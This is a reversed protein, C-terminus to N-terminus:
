GSAVYKIVSVYQIELRRAVSERVFHYDVEIHENRAHFVHNVCFISLELTIVGYSLFEQHKFGWNMM